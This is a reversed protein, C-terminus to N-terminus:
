DKSPNLFSELEWQYWWGVGKDVTVGNMYDFRRDYRFESLQDFWDPIQKKIMNDECRLHWLNDLKDIEFSSIKNHSCYIRELLPFGSINLSSIQNTSCDLTLLEPLGSIDFKSIQNRACDLEWIKSCSKVSLSSLNIGNCNIWELLNCNEVILEDISGWNANLDLKALSSCNSVKLTGCSSCEVEELSPCDNLIVRSTNNSNVYVYELASHNNINLTHVGVSSLYKLNVCDELNVELGIGSFGLSELASCGSVNLEELKADALYITQMSTCNQANFKKLSRATYDFEELKTCGSIDVVEFEIEPYNDACHFCDLWTLSSCGSIDLMKMDYSYCYLEELSEMGSLSLSYIPNGSCNLYRISPLIVFASSSIRNGSCDLDVLSPCGMFTLSSIENNSCYLEELRSCGSVDLSTLQNDWCCLVAIRNFGSLNLSGKLNNGSLDLEIQGYNNISVGYWEDYPKESLWHNSNYWNWGETSMYVDYLFAFVEDFSTIFSSSEGFYYEGDFLIYPRYYYERAMKLDPVTMSLSAEKNNEIDKAEILVELFDSNNIDPNKTDASYCFGVKMNPIADSIRMNLVVSNTIVDASVDKIVPHIFCDKTNGVLRLHKQEQSFVIQKRTDAAIATYNVESLKDRAEKVNYGNLMNLYFYTSAIHGLYNSIDYGLYAQVGKKLLENAFNENGDMSLCADNFFITKIEPYAIMHHKVFNETICLTGDECLIISDDRWETKYKIIFTSFDASEGTLIWHLGSEEDYNGHTELVVNDYSLIRNRFFDINADKENIPVVNFKRKRFERALIDLNRSYDAIQETIVIALNNKESYSHDDLDAIKSELMIYDSFDPDAEYVIEPRPFEWIIKGGGSVKVILANDSIYAKEVYKIDKIAPLYESLEEIDECQDFIYSVSDILVDIEEAFQEDSIANINNISSDVQSECSIFSIIVLLLIAFSNGRVM